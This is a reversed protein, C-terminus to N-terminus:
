QQWEPQQPSAGMEFPLNGGPRVHIWRMQRIMLFEDFKQAYFAAFALNFLVFFAAFSGFVTAWSVTMFSHYLDQWFRRPLGSSVFQRGTVNIGKRVRAHELPRHRAPM